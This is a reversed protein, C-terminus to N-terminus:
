FVWVRVSGFMRFGPQPTLGITSLSFWIDSEAALLQSVYRSEYVPYRDIVSGPFTGNMEYLLGPSPVLNHATLFQASDFEDPLLIDDPPSGHDVVQLGMYFSGPLVALAGLEVPEFTLSGAIEFRTISVGAAFVEPIQYHAFTTNPSEGDDHMILTFTVAPM